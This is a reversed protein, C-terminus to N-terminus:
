RLNKAQIIESYLSELENLYIETSFRNKVSEHAELGVKVLESFELSMIKKLTNKLENIESNQIIWGNKKNIVFEKVGGVSTVICPLGVGMAEVIALGFGESLSPQIYINCKKIIEFPSEQYGFIEVEKNLRYENVIDELKDRLPGDGVIYLKVTYGEIKLDNILHILIIPNKVMDLRGVFGILFGNKNIESEDRLLPIKVPNYIFTAKHVEVEKNEVLWEATSKSVGIVKDTLKYILSFILKALKSHKPIGIEEAIRVPVKSIFAAIIGHFNAEAGHTHVILPRQKIMFLTLKYITFFNPIKNKLNLIYVKCKTKRLLKETKGGESIACFMPYFRLSRDNEAILQIHKEVGGFNLSTVIHLVGNRNNM